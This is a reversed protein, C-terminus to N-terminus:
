TRFGSVREYSVNGSVAYSPLDKEFENRLLIPLEKM